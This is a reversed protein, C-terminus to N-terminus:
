AAMPARYKALTVVASKVCANRSAAFLVSAFIEYQVFLFLNFILSLFSLGDDFDIGSLGHQIVEVNVFLQLDFKKRLARRVQPRLL